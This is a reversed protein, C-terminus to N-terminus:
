KKRIESSAYKFMDLPNITNMFFIFDRKTFERIIYLLSVYLAIGILGFIALHYWRPMEFFSSIYSMSISMIIGAFIHKIVSKERFRKRTLKGSYFRFGIFLIIGSILAACAAGSAGMIGFSKLPSSTPILLINLIINSIGSISIIKAIFGPKNMGLIVYRYPTLLTYILTNIALIKFSMEAPRFSSNLFIDIISQSFTVLFSILPVIIMSSYRESQRTVMVIEHIREKKSLKKNAHVASITPFLVIGISSAFLLILTSFRQVSSYYGVETSTWFFGLMVKDVNAIFLTFFLPIMLPIAFKLYHKAYAMNPKKFPYNRMLVIGAIFMTLAGFLYAASFSGITNHSLFTQIGSLFVPWNFSPPVHFMMDSGELSIFAGSIGAMAVILMLPVRVLPDLIASLQSKAIQKRSNFSM